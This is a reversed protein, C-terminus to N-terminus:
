RGEALAVLSALAVPADQAIMPAVDEAGPGQVTTRVTIRSGEATAEVVHDITITLAGVTIRDQYRAGPEVVELVLPVDMSGALVMRGTAGAVFEGPLDVSDVAPDWTPWTATQSWIAWVDGPTATTTASEEHAFAM